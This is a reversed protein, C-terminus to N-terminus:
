GLIQLVQRVIAFTPSGTDNTTALRCRGAVPVRWVMVQTNSSQLNLGVTLTGTSESQVTEVITSPTTTADCLLDIHGAAGGSLSLTTTIKVSVTYVTDHTTDFQAAAGNFALTPTSTGTVISGPGAPGTSGTAGAAGTSGTAGTPGSTGQNGQPGQAGTSGTPGTPGASGAPGVPGTAGLGINPNVSWRNDTTGEIVGPLHTAPWDYRSSAGFGFAYGLTYANLMVLDASGDMEVAAVIAAYSHTSDFRYIVSQGVVPTTARASTPVALLALAILITRM